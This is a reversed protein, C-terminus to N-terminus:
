TSFLLPGLSIMLYFVLIGLTMTICSTILMRKINFGFIPVSFLAGVVITGMQIVDLCRKIDEPSIHPVKSIGTITKNLVIFYSGLLAAIAPVVLCIMIFGMALGNATVSLLQKRYLQFDELTKALTKLTDSLNGGYKRNEIMIKGLMKFIKSEYIASVVTIAEEFSIKQKEILYLVKAFVSSVEKINAKVVESIAENISRGSDLTLIMIYLAKPLNKELTEIKSEYLISPLSLASGFYLLTMIVTSKFSLKMINSLIIPIIISLVLILFFKKEDFNKGLKKFILLNRKILSNYIIYLYNM